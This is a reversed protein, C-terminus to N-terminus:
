NKILLIRRNQASTGPEHAPETEGKGVATIRSDDVGLSLLFDRAANARRESLDRNYAEDGVTDTHGEITISAGPNQELWVANGRLKNKAGANLSTSDTGFRFQRVWKASKVAPKKKVAVVPAKKAIRPEKKPTKKVVAPTKKKEPPTPAVEPRPKVKVEAVKAKPTRAEPTPTPRNQSVPTRASVSSKGSEASSAVPTRLTGGGGERGTAVVRARTKGKAVRRNGSSLTRVRQRRALVIEVNKSTDSSNGKKKMVQSKTFKTKADDFQDSDAIVLHYRTTTAESVSAVRDVRHRATQLRKLLPTDKRGVILIRSRNKSEKKRVKPAGTVLKVGCAEATPTPGTFAVGFSISAILLARLM